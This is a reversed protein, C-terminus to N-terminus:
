AIKSKLSGNLKLPLNSVFVGAKRHVSHCGDGSKQFERGKLPNDTGRRTPAGRAESYNVRRAGGSRVMGRAGQGEM